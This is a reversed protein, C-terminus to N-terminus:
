QPLPKLEPFLWEILDRYTEDPLYRMDNQRLLPVYAKVRKAWKGSKDQEKLLSRLNYVELARRFWRLHQPHSQAVYHAVEIFQRRRLGIPRGHKASYLANLLAVPLYKGATYESLPSQSLMGWEDWHRPAGAPFDSLADEVDYQSTKKDAAEVWWEGFQASWGAQESMLEAALRENESRFDFFYAQQHVPDLNLQQFSIRQRSLGKERGPLEPTAWVCDLLFEGSALSANRTSESVIFANQNNNYFVDDQMLRRHDEDFRSFVWFLLGGEKQYFRWREAIVDIFTTSLQIEFAVKLDGFLASVDPKRWAGTIPGTWRAEQAISTFLGSAHLSDALWQKMQRHAFSEKLGNYKRANIDKQSLEGRTIASCSGDETTHRFHFKRVSVQSILSVPAFCESCLYKARDEQISKKIEFRLEIARAMDSGILDQARLEQGTATDLVFAVKPDDVALSPGVDFGARYPQEARM